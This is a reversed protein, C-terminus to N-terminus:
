RHLHFVGGRLGLGRDACLSGMRLVHESVDEPPHPCLHATFIDFSLLSVNPTYHSLLFSSQSHLACRLFTNASCSPSASHVLCPFCRTCFDRALLVPLCKAM